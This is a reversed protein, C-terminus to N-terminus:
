FIELRASHQHLTNGDHVVAVCHTGPHGLGVEGEAGEVSQAVPGGPSEEGPARGGEGPQPRSLPNEIDLHSVEPLSQQLSKLQKLQQLM